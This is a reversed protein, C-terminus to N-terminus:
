GIERPSLHRDGCGRRHRTARNDMQDASNAAHIDKLAPIPIRELEKPEFKVLGGAYVRGGTIGVHRRLWVLIGALQKRDLRVRPYLGHAINLHRARATNLVFAPARRAMYTVLIPAPARLEVSWWAKRHRAVYGDAAGLSKAWRLYKRVDRLEQDFLDDLSVPLDVVRKLGITSRLEPGAGILERAKTVTPRLFREPILYALDGAIWIENAGTVQGRHVRFLEGLEIFGSPKEVRERMFVSWKPAKVIDEWEVSVGGDMPALDELRHVARLVFHTPRSGIHFCTVAGTTFAEFPLAKPDIVHVSCGGLGDALMNRLTAGYNVDLWEAATIFAGYDGSQAIERTRLFFHMHLGALKSAKFGFRLSAAAFWSKWRESIEHHRVYPPNGIYLTRGRCIPLTVERYDGLELQLRRSYGRVCANARTLLLAMPDIDIGVLKANPFQEAAAWLFRGSGVGPDIVREPAADISAAWRIMADIILWPTYTAGTKRRKEPSRLKCFDAGFADEGSLIRRRYEAVVAKPPPPVRCVLKREASTLSQSQDILSAALAVLRRESATMVQGDSHVKRLAGVDRRVARKAEFGSPSSRGEGQARTDPVFQNRYDPAARAGAITKCDESGDVLSTTSEDVATLSSLRSLFVKVGIPAPM